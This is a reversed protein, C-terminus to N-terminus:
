AKMDGTIGTVPLLIRFETRGPVSSVEITGGHRGVIGQAIDLGLGTGQGIPKTTFFPEFVRERIAEPIGSGTDTVSLEFSDGTSGSAITISGPGDLANTVLLAERNKIVTECFTGITMSFTEDVPFPNGKSNSSVLTRYHTYHPPEMRTVVASPVQMVNALLDVIRQWKGLVDSEVAIEPTESNM